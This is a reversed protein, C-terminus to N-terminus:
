RDSWYESRPSSIPASTSDRPSGSTSLAQSTKSRSDRKRGGGSCEADTKKPERPSAPRLKERRRRKAVKGGKSLMEADAKSNRSANRATEDAVVSATSPRLETGGSNG